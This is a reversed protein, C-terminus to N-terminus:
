ARADGLLEWAADISALIAGADAAAQAADGATYHSSPSGSAHADPYRAPIYHRSLRAAADGIPEPWAAGLSSRVRSELVTLDHGWPELGVAHLLANVALQAAQEYLFCAWEYRGGDQVLQATESASAAQARWRAFEDTDLPSTM